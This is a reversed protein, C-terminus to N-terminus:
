AEMREPNHFIGLTWWKKDDFTRRDDLIASRNAGAMLERSHPRQLAGFNRPEGADGNLADNPIKRFHPGLYLNVAWDWSGKVKDEITVLRATGAAYHPSLFNKYVHLKKLRRM